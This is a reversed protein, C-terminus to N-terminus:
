LLCPSHLARRQHARVSQLTVCSNVSLLVSNRCCAFGFHQRSFVQPPRLRHCVAALRELGPPGPGAWWCGKSTYCCVDRLMGARDPPEPPLPHARLLSPAAALDPPSRSATVHGWHLAVRLTVCRCGLRGQSRAGHVSSDVCGRGGESMATPVSSQSHRLHLRMQTHPPPTKSWDCGGRGSQPGKATIM